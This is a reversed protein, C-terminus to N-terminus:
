LHITFKSTIIYRHSWGGTQLDVEVIEMNNSDVKIGGTGDGM